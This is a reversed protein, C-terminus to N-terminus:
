YLVNKLNQRLTLAGRGRMEAISNGSFQEQCYSLGRHKHMCKKGEWEIRYGM